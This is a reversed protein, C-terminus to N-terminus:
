LRRFRLSEVDHVSGPRRRPSRPWQTGPGSEDRSGLPLRVGRRLRDRRGTAGNGPFGCSARVEACVGQFGRRGRDWFQRARNFPSTGASSVPSAVLNRSQGPPPETIRRDTIGHGRLQHSSRVVLLQSQGGLPNACGDGCTAVGFLSHM